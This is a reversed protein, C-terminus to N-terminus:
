AEIGGGEGGAGVDGLKVKKKAVNCDSFSLFLVFFHGSGCVVPRGILPSRDGRQSRGSMMGM